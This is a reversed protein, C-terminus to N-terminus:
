ALKELKNDIVKISLYTVVIYYEDGNNCQSLRASLREDRTKGDDPEYGPVYYISSLLHKFSHTCTFNFKVQNFIDLM